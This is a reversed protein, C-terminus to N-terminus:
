PLRAIRRCACEARRWLERSARPHFSPCDPLRTPRAKTWSPDDAPVQQLCRRPPTSNLVAWPFLLRAPDIVDVHGIAIVRRLTDGLMVPFRRNRAPQLTGHGLFCPHPAPSRVLEGRGDNVNVSDAQRLRQLTKIWGRECASILSRLGGIM